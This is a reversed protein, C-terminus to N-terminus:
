IGLGPPLRLASRTRGLGEIGADGWDEAHPPPNTFSSDELSIEYLSYIM